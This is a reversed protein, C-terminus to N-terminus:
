LSEYCYMEDMVRCLSFQGFTELMIRMLGAVHYPMEFIDEDLDVPGTSTYIHVLDLGRLSKFRARLNGNNLGHRWRVYLEIDTIHISLRSILDLHATSFHSFYAFDWGDDFTVTSHKWALPMAEHYLQKCALPVINHTISSGNACLRHSGIFTGTSRAQATAEKWRSTGKLFDFCNVEGDM